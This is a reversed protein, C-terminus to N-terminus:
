SRHHASDLRFFWFCNLKPEDKSGPKRYLFCLKEHDKEAVQIKHFFSNIDGYVAIKRLRLSFFVDAMDTTWNPGELLCKNLSTGQCLSSANFVIRPKEPKKLNVHHPLVNINWQKAEEATLQRVFKQNFLKMVAKHYIEELGKEALRKEVSLLTRM